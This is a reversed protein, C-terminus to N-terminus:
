MGRSYKMRVSAPLGTNVLYSDRDAGSSGKQNVKKIQLRGPPSSESFIVEVIPIMCARIETKM